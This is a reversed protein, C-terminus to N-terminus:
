VQASVPLSSGTWAGVQPAWSGSPRSGTVIVTGGTGYGAPNSSNANIGGIVSGTELAFTSYPAESNDRNIRLEVGTANSINRATFAFYVGTYVEPSENKTNYKAAVLEVSPAEIASAVQGAMVAYMPQLMLALALMFTSLIR